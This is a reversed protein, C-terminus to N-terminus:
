KSTREDGQPAALGIRPEEVPEVTVSQKREIPINKPVGSQVTITEAEETTATDSSSQVASPDFSERTVPPTSIVESPDRRPTLFLGKEYADRQAGPEWPQETLQIQNYALLSGKQRHLDRISLNYNSLAQYFAIESQVVSRQAQLLFNINDTGDLYRRLLVQVQRLDAQYRNCNTEVLQFSM